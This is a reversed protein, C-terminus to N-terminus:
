LGDDTVEADIIVPIRRAARQTDVFDAIAQRVPESPEVFEIGSRYVTVDTSLEGVYCHVIRGKVIVSREGLSLRFEHLSDLQLPFPVEIQAGNHSIEVITMPQFVMVAGELQGRPAIRETERKDTEEIM